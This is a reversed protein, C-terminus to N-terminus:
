EAEAPDGALPSVTLEVTDKNRDVAYFTACLGGGALLTLILTLALAKRM